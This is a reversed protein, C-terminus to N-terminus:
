VASVLAKIKTAVITHVDRLKQLAEAELRHVEMEALHEAQKVSAIEELKEYKAIAKHFVSLVDQGAKSIAASKAGFLKLFFFKM